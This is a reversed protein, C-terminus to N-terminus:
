SIREYKRRLELAKAKVRAVYNRYTRAQVGLIRSAGSATGAEAYLCIIRREAPTLDNMVRKMLAVRESDTMM